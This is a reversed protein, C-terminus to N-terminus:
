VALNRAFVLFLGLSAVPVVLVAIFWATFQPRSLGFRRALGAGLSLAAATSVFAAISWDRPTVVYRFTGPRMNLVYGIYAGILASCAALLIGLLALPVAGRRPETAAQPRLLLSVVALATGLPFLVFDPLSFGALPFIAAALATSLLGLALVIASIRPM